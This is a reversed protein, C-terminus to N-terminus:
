NADAILVNIAFQLVEDADVEILERLLAKTRAQCFGMAMLTQQADRHSNLHRNNRYLGAVGPAGRLPPGDDRPAQDANDNVDDANDAHARTNDANDASPPPATDASPTDASATDSDSLVVVEPSEPRLLPSGSPSPSGTPSPSPSYSQRPEKNLAQLISDAVEKTVRQSMNYLKRIVTLQADDQLANLHEAARRIAHVRMWKKGNRYQINYYTGTADGDAGHELADGHELATRCHEHVPCILADEERGEAKAKAYIREKEEDTMYYGCITCFTSKCPTCYMTDCGDEDNLCPTFCTPCPQIDSDLLQLCREYVIDELTMQNKQLTILREAEQKAHAARVKSVTETLQASVTNSANKLPLKCDPCVNGTDAMNANFEIYCPACIYHDGCTMAETTAWVADKCSAGITSWCLQCPMDSYSVNHLTDGGRQAQEQLEARERDLEAREKGLAAREMLSAEERLSSTDERIHAQANMFEAEARLAQVERDKKMARELLEGAAKRKRSDTVVEVVDRQTEQTLTDTSLVTAEVRGLTAQLDVVIDRMSKDRTLKEAQVVSKIVDHLRDFDPADMHAKCKAMTCKVAHRLFTSQADQPGYGGSLSMTCYLCVYKRTQRINWQDERRKLSADYERGYVKTCVAHGIACNGRVGSTALLPFIQYNGISVPCYNPVMTSGYHQHLAADLGKKVLSEQSAGAM